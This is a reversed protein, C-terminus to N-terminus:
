LKSLFDVVTSDIDNRRDLVEAIILDRMAQADPGFHVAFENVKEMSDFSWIIECLAKQTLTLGQINFDKIPDM